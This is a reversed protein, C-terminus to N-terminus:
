AENILQSSPTGFYEPIVETVNMFANLYCITDDLHDVKPVVTSSDPAVDGAALGSVGWSNLHALSTKLLM